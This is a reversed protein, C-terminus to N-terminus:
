SKDADKSAYGYRDMLIKAEKDSFKLVNILTNYFFKSLNRQQKDKDFLGKIVEGM